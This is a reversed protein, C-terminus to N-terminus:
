WVTRWDAASLMASVNSLLTSAFLLAFISVVDDKGPMTEIYFSNEKVIFDGPLACYQADHNIECLNSGDENEIYNLSKCTTHLTVFRMQCHLLSPVVSSENVYGKLYGLVVLINHYNISSIQEFLHLFNIM